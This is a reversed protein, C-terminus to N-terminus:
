GNQEKEMQSFYNYTPILIAPVIFIAWYFYFPQHKTYDPWWASPIPNPWAVFAVLIAVMLWIPLSIFIKLFLKWPPHTAQPDKWLAYFTVLIPFGSILSNDIVTFHLALMIGPWSLTWDALNGLFYQNFILMFGFSIACFGLSMLLM